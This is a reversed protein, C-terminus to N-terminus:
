PSDSLSIRSISCSIKKSFYMQNKNMVGKLFQFDTERLPKQNRFPEVAGCLPTEGLTVNEGIILERKPTVNKGIIVYNKQL